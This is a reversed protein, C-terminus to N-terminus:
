GPIWSPKMGSNTHLTVHRAVQHWGLAGLCHDAPEGRAQLLTSSVLVILHFHFFYMQVTSLHRNGKQCVCLFCSQKIEASICKVCVCLVWCLLLSIRLILNSWCVSLNIFYPYSIGSLVCPAWFLRWVLGTKRETCSFYYGSFTNHKKGRCCSLM